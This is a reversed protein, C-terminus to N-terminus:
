NIRRLWSGLYRTASGFVEMLEKWAVIFWTANTDMGTDLDLSWQLVISKNFDTQYMEAKVRFSNGFEMDLDTM